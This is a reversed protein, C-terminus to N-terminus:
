KCNKYLPNPILLEVNRDLVTGTRNGNESYEVVIYKDNYSLERSISAIEAISYERCEKKDYSKSSNCSSSKSSDDSKSTNCCSSKSNNNSSNSNSSNNNSSSATGTSFYGKDTQVPSDHNIMTSFISLTEGRDAIELIRSQQPYDIHSATNIEWFGNTKGTPDPFPTVRNRHEHGNVLCIINPFRWIFRCFEAGDMKQPDPDLTTPSNFINNMTAITHHCFLMVIKDKNQTKVLQGQTNYYESHIKILETELWVMMNRGLGGNPALNLDTLNGSPNCSNLVFGEVTDSIKYKYYLVNNEVNFETFGHGIPGPTSTTNYHTSIFESNSFQSRKVTAPVTRILSTKILNLVANADQKQLAVAFAAASEPTMAEILKSGLDPITGTAIQNFLKFIEYYGLSYNGLKTVDHNGCCTLWPTKLGEAKFPKSASNLIDPFDPYGFFKKYNDPETGSPNPNPHYYFPYAYSVFDDQVGVYNGRTPNPYVKKGDLLNIFNQLECFAESDAVDGTSVVFNFPEGLHPGRKVANIKRVMCEQVQCSFAEYSRFADQLQDPFAEVFVSLFSSRAPNTADIIHSDTIHVITALCKKQKKNQKDERCNDKKCYLNLLDKRKICREGKTKKLKYYKNTTMVPTIGTNMTTIGARMASPMSNMNSANTVSDMETPTLPPVNMNTTNNTTNTMPTTMPTMTM